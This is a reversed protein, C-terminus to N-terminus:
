KEAADPYLENAAKQAELEAEGLPGAKVKAAESEAAESVAASSSEETGKSSDNTTTSSKSDSSSSSSASSSTLTGVIVSSIEKQERVPEPPQVPLTDSKIDKVPADAFIDRGPEAKGPDAMTVTDDPAAAQPNKDEIVIPARGGEEGGITSLIPTVM